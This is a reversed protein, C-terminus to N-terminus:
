AAPPIGAALEIATTILNHARATLAALLGHAEPEATSATAQLIQLDDELRGVLYALERAPPSTLATAIEDLSVGHAELQRIAAIRDVTAPHYLRFNGATRAAEALLGLSTYYDVTRTSVGAQAAVEGIRLLSHTVVNAVEESRLGVM